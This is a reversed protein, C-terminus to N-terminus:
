EVTLLLLDTVVFQEGAYPSNTILHPRVHAAACQTPDIVDFIQARSDFPLMLRQEILERLRRLSDAKENNNRFIANILFRVGLKYQSAYYTEWRGLADEFNESAVICNYAQVAARLYTNIYEAEVYTSTVCQTSKISGEIRRKAADTATHRWIHITTEVFLSKAADSM